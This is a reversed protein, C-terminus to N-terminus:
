KISLIHFIDQHFYKCGATNIKYLSWNIVILIHDLNATAWLFESQYNFLNRGILIVSTDRRCGELRFSFSGLVKYVFL